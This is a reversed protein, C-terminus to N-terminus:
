FFARNNSGFNMLEALYMAQIMTNASSVILYM